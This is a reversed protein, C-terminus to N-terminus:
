SAACVETFDGFYNKLVKVVEHLFQFSLVAQANGQSVAVAYRRQTPLAPPLHRLNTMGHHGLLDCRPLRRVHQRCPHLPLRHQWHIQCTNSEGSKAYLRLHDCAGRPRYTLAFLLSCLPEVISFPEPEPVLMQCCCFAGSCRHWAASFVSQSVCRRAQLSKRAFSM